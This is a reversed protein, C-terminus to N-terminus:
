MDPEWPWADSSQVVQWEMCLWGTLAPSRFAESARVQPVAPGLLGRDVIDVVAVEATEGECEDTPEMLKAQMEM